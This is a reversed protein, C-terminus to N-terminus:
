IYLYINYLYLHVLEQEVVPTTLCADLIKKFVILTNLIFVGSYYYIATLLAKIYESGELLMCM